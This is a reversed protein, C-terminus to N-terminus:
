QRIRDLGHPPSVGGLNSKVTLPLAPCPSTFTANGCAPPPAGVLTITYLGGGNNTFVAGVGGAAADPNYTGTPPCAVQGAVTQCLYPQLTLTV